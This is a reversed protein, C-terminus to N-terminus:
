KTNEKVSASKQREALMADAIKYSWQAEWKAAIFPDKCGSKIADDFSKQQSKQIESNSIRGNLVKAAFYDRLTLEDNIM